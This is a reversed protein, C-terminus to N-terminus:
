ELLPLLDAPNIAKNGSYVELHIHPGTSRGTNGLVGIQTSATIEDGEEVSVKNLHAYLSTLGNEHQIVLYHGYGGSEYGVTKVVGPLISRMPANVQGRIDLARHFVHFKQSIGLFDSKLIPFQYFTKLKVSSKIEPELVLQTEPALTTVHSASFLLTAAHATQVRTLILSVILVITLTVRSIYKNQKM